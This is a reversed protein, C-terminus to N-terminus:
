KPWSPHKMLLTSLGRALFDDVADGDGMLVVPERHVEVWDGPRSQVLYVAGAKLTGDAEEQPAPDLRIDIPQLHDWTSALSEDLKRQLDTLLTM